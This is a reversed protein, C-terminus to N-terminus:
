DNSVNKATEREIMIQLYHAAKKLDEVGNKDKFRTVYKVVNGQLYDLGNEMIYEIPQIAYNKYHSGGVQSALALKEQQPPLDENFYISNLSLKLPYLIASKTVYELDIRGDERVDKKNFTFGLDRMMLDIDILRHEIVCNEVVGFVTPDVQIIVVNDEYYKRAADLVLGNRVLIEYICRAFKGKYVAKM